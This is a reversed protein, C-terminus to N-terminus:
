HTHVQPPAFAEMRGPNGGAGNGPRAPAPRRGSWPAGAEVSAGAKLLVAVSYGEPATGRDAENAAVPPFNVDYSVPTPTPTPTPSPTPTPPLTVVPNDDDCGALVVAPIVSLGLLGKGLISRRSPNDAVIAELSDPGNLDDTARRYPARAEDTLHSM